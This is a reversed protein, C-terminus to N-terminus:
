AEILYIKNFERHGPMSETYCAMAKFCSNLVLIRAQNLCCVSSDSFSSFYVLINHLIKKWIFNREPVRDMYSIFINIVFSSLAQQLLVQFCFDKPQWLYYTFYAYFAM